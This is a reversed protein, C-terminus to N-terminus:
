EVLVTSSNKGELATTTGSLKCLTTDTGECTKVIDANIDEEAGFHVKVEVFEDQKSPIEKDASTVKSNGCFFLYAVLAFGALAAVSVYLITQYDFDQGNGEEKFEQEKTDYEKSSSTRRSNGREKEETDKAYGESREGRKKDKDCDEGM